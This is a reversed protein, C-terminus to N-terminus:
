GQRLPHPMMLKYVRTYLTGPRGPDRGDGQRLAADTYYVHHICDVACTSYSDTAHGIM